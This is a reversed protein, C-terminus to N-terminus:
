QNYLMDDRPVGDRRLLVGEDNLGVIRRGTGAFCEKDIARVEVVGVTTELNHQTRVNLVVGAMGM